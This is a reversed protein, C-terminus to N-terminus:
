IKFLFISLFDKVNILAKIILKKLNFILYFMLVLEKM